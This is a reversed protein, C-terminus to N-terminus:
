GIVFMPATTPRPETKCLFWANFIQGNSFLRCFNIEFCLRTVHVTSLSVSSSHGLSEKVDLRVWVTLRDSHLPAERYWNSNSDSWYRFNQNNVGGHVEFHAEDSFMILEKFGPIQNILGLINTAFEIRKEYVHRPIEQLMKM